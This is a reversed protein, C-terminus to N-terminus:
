GQLAPDSEIVGLLFNCKGCLLGRVNGNEHDHDVALSRIPLIRKDFATEPQKCIACVGGQRFLMLDYEEPTIDYHYLLSWARGEELTHRAKRRESTCDRCYCTKRDHLALCGPCRKMGVPIPPLTKICDICAHQLHRSSPQYAHPREEGCVKCKRLIPALSLIAMRFFESEKTVSKPTVLM